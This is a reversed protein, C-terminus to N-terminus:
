EIPITKNKQILFGDKEFYTYNKENIGTYYSKKSNKKELNM